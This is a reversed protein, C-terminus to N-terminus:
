CLKITHSAEYRKVSDGWVWYAQVRYLDELASLLTLPKAETRKSRLSLRAHNDDATPNTGMNATPAAISVVNICSITAFLLRRKFEVIVYKGWLSRYSIDWCVIRAFFGQPSINKLTM